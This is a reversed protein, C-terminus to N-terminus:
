GFKFLVTKYLLERASAKEPSRNTLWLLPARSATTVSDRFSLDRFTFGTKDKEPDPQLPCKLPSEADGHAEQCLLHGDLLAWLM